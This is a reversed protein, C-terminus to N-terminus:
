AHAPNLSRMHQMHSSSHSRRRRRRRRKRQVQSPRVEQLDCEKVNVFVSRGMWDLLVVSRGDGCSHHYRVRQNLLSDLSTLVVEDGANFRASPQREILVDGACISVLKEIVSQRVKAPKGNEFMVIGVIDGIERMIDWCLQFPVFIYSPFAPVLRERLVGRHATLLRRKFFHFPLEREALATAVRHETNPYTTALAWESL